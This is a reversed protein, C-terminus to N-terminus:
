ASKKSKKPTKYKVSFVRSNEPTYTITKEFADIQEQTLCPKVAEIAIKLAATDVSTRARPSNSIEISCGDDLLFRAKTAKGLKEIIPISVERANKDLKDATDSYIKQESKISMYMLAADLLKEDTWIEIPANNDAYGIVYDKVTKIEDEPEGNHPPAMRALIHEKFWKSEAELQSKEANKDRDVFRAVFDEKDYGSGVYMNAITKDDTFLCGIYTGCIRDDNLVAPYQRTQALYYEPINGDQWAKSNEMITTKAEFVFYRGDNFSVIADIDAICEPNTKSAFMRSEPIITAGTLECFIEVVKNEVVHGREFVWNKSQNKIKHPTGIKQHYLNTETSFKSKGQIVAADSGGVGLHRITEWESTTLFATDVVVTANPWEIRSTIPMGDDVLKVFEVIEVPSLTDFTFNEKKIDFLVKAWKAFSAENMGSLELAANLTDIRKHVAMSVDTFRSQLTAEMWSPAKEPLNCEFYSM